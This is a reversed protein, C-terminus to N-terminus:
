LFWAYRSACSVVPWEQGPMVSAVILVFTSADCSFRDYEWQTAVWEMSDFLTHPHNVGEIRTQLQVCNEALKLTEAVRGPRKSTFLLLLM